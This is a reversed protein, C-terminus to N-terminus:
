EWMQYGTESLTLEIAVGNLEENIEAALASISEQDYVVGASFAKIIRDQVQALLEPLVITPYDVLVIQLEVTEEVPEPQQRREALALRKETLVRKVVSKM